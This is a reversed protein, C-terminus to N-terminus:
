WDFSRNSRRINGRDPSLSSDSSTHEKRSKMEKEKQSTVSESDGFDDESNSDVTNDRQSSANSSSHSSRPSSAQKERKEQAERALQERKEQIRKYKKMLLHNQSHEEGHALFYMHYYMLDKIIGARQQDLHKNVGTFEDTEPYQAMFKELPTLEKEQVQEEDGTQADYFELEEEDEQEPTEENAMQLNSWLVVGFLLM